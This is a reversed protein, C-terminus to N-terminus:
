LSRQGRMVSRSMMASIQAESKRFSNADTATVNFIVQTVPSAGSAAVGLTGDPGRKLPMIAESGAEGMLGFDAGGMPFYTPRSVVGGDAFPMVRGPVGGNAFLSLGGASGFLNSFGGSILNELPKLGAQMAISSMRLALGKLVDDLGKGGIVASQMAQSLASGFRNSRDELQLLVTSLAEASEYQRAFDQTEKM